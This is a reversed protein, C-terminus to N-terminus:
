SAIRRQVKSFNSVGGQELAIKLVFGVAVLDAIIASGGYSIFPLTVGIVPAIGINTAINTFIQFILWFGIGAVTYKQFLDKCKIATRFIALLLVLYLFIVIITGVLGMEEGIVSFIFDTHAEALNAWKQKSEGIGVGFVGGSALGMMSHAPQWGAFKYVDPAFPDWLAKFRKVRNPQTIVLAAIGVVAAGFTGVTYMPNLGSIILLSFTIGVFILATGMDKGGLILGIFIAAAPLVVYVPNFNGDPSSITAQKLRYACFLILALKAFESPQITFPGIPIWNKNGNIDRGLALTAILSVIGFVLSLRALVEWKDFSIRVAAYALALGIVIFLLQRIFTGYANGYQQISSVSSASLVMLMGLAVLGMVSTMILAYDIGLIRLVKAQM